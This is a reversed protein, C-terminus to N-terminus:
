QVTHSFTMGGGCLVTALQSFTELLETPFDRVNSFSFLMVYQYKHYFM